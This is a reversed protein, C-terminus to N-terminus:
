GGSAQSRQHALHEAAMGPKYEGTYGGSSGTNTGASGAGKASTGEFAAAYRQDKKMHTVLEEVSMPDTSGQKLSIRENGSEDIVSVRPKKTSEDRTVKIHKVVHPLLLDTNGKARGLASTAEAVVLVEHLDNNARTLEDTLRNLESTHKDELQAKMAEVARKTKEDPTGDKLLDDLQKLKKQVNAADLGEFAKALKKAEDREARTSSLASRLGEINELGYGGVPEVQLLYGGANDGEEIRKYLAKMSDSLADFEQQTLLAKM